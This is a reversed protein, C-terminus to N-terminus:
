FGDDSLCLLYIKNNIIMDNEPEIKYGKNNINLFGVTNYRKLDCAALITGISMLKSTISSFVFKCKGIPELVLSYHDAVECIKGYLLFPNTESAYVINKKEIEWQSFLKKRYAILIKDSRRVDVSPFPVVPCIEDINKGDLKLFDYYKQLQVDDVEGLVPFWITRTNNSLAGSIFGLVDHAFEDLEVPVTNMDTQYNESVMIFIEKQGLYTEIIKNIMCIYIAQPIASVDIIIESFCDIENKNQQILKVTNIEAVYRDDHWMSITKDFVNIKETLKSLNRLNEEIQKVYEKSPSDDSENYGIKWVTLNSCKERVINLCDCMRKDFGVGMIFLTPKTNIKKDFYEPIDEDVEMRYNGWIRNM